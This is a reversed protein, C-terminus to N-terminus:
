KNSWKQYYEIGKQIMNQDERPDGYPYKGGKGGLLPIGKSGLDEINNKSVQQVWGGVRKLEEPKFSLASGMVAFNLNAFDEYKRDQRKFDWKGGPALNLVVAPLAWNGLKKVKKIRDEINFPKNNNDYLPVQVPFGDNDKVPLVGNEKFIQNDNKTRGVVLMQKRINELQDRREQLEKQKILFDNKQDPLLATNQLMINIERLQPYIQNDLMKKIEIEDM